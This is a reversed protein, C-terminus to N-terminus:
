PLSGIHAFLTGLDRILLDRVKAGEDIGFHDRYKAYISLLQNNITKESRRLRKALDKQTGGYRVLARMVEQEAPTLKCWFAEVFRLRERDRLEKQREIARYPDDWLLIERATSPFLSWHLVPIPVLVVQSPDRPHMSREALLTGESLLHWVYDREDLVLQAVVMGMAAMVKRGGAVSLHVRFNKRKLNAVTRYLVRLLVGVDQETVFDAPFLDGERIPVFSFVVASGERRYFDVEDRLKRLSEALSASAPNPHVVFVERIHFGKAQLADLTLTVVQPEIGLTAVLAERPEADVFACVGGQRKKRDYCFRLPFPFPSQFLLRRVSWSNLAVRFFGLRKVSPFFQTEM